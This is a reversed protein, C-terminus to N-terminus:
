FAYSLGAEIRLPPQQDVSPAGPALFTAVV